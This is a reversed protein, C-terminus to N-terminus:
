DLAPLEEDSEYILAAEEDDIAELLAILEELERVFRSSRRSRRSARRRLRGALREAEDFSESLEGLRPRLWPAEEVVDRFPGGEGDLERRRERLRDVVQRLHNDVILRVLSRDNVAADHAIRAHVIANRVPDVAADPGRRTTTPHDTISHNM